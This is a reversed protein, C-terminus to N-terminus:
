RRTRVNHISRCLTLDLVSLVLLSHLPRSRYVSTYMVFKGKCAAHLVSLGWWRCSPIFSYVPVCAAHQAPKAPNPCRTNLLSQWRSLFPLYVRPTRFLPSRGAAGMERLHLLSTSFSSHPVPWYQLPLYHFFLPHLHTPPLLWSHRTCSVFYTLCYSDQGVQATKELGPVPPALRQFM